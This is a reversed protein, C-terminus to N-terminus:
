LRPPPLEPPRLEQPPREDGFRLFASSQSFYAEENKHLFSNWRLEYANIECHFMTTAHNSVHNVHYGMFHSKSSFAIDSNLTYTSTFLRQM